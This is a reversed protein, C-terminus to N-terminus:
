RDDDDGLMAARLRTIEIEIGTLATLRVETALPPWARNMNVGIAARKRELRKLEAYQTAVEPHGLHRLLQAEFSQSETM